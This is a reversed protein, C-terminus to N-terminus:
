SRAPARAAAASLLHLQGHITLAAGLSVQKRHQLHDLVERFQPQIHLRGSDAAVAAPKHVHKVHSFAIARLDLVRPLQGTDTPHAAQKQRTYLTPM